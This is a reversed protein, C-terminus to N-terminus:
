STGLAGDVKHQRNAGVLRAAGRKAGRRSSAFHRRIVGM